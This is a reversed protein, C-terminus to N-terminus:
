NNWSISIPVCPCAAGSAIPIFLHQEPPSPTVSTNSQLHHPCTPTVRSTISVHPVNTWLHHPRLATAESTVSVRRHQDPPPLSVLTNSHLHHSCLHMAGSTCLCAPPVFINSRLHQPCLSTARTTSPICLSQVPPAPVVRACQWPPAKRTSNSTRSTSPVYPCQEPPTM